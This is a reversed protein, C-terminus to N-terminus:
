VSMTRHLLFNLFPNVACTGLKFLRIYTQIIFWKFVGQFFLFFPHKSLMVPSGLPAPIYTKIVILTPAGATLSVAYLTGAM